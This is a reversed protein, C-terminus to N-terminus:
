RATVIYDPLKGYVKRSALSVVAYDPYAKRFEAMSESATQQSTTDFEFPCESSVVIDGTKPFYGYEANNVSYVHVNVDGRKQEGDKTYIEGRGDCYHVDKFVHRVFTDKEYFTCDGNTVLLETRIKRNWSLPINGEIGETPYGVTRFMRGFFALKRDIWEHTDGKPIALTYSLMNGDNVALETEGSTSPEGILINGVTESGSDTFLTIDIGKIMTVM